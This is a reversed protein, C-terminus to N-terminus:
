KASHRNNSKRMIRLTFTLGFVHLTLTIPMLIVEKRLHHGVAQATATSRLEKSCMYKLLRVPHASLRYNPECLSFIYMQRFFPFVPLIKLDPSLIRSVTRHDLAYSRCVRTIQRFIRQVNVPTLTPRVIFFSSCQSM